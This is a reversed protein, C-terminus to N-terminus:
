ATARGASAAEAPRPEDHLYRREVRPGVSCIVEYPHTGKLRAWDDVSVSQPGEGGLCLVEDGPRAEPVQDLSVATYDMSVRGLVPCLRGHIRLAGRNSLALPLGDAYGAAVVGIRTTTPCVYTAGYGLTSGAAMTRVQALRAHLAFVPRLSVTRRGELDFVGYLNIGTRVHTFPPRVAAPVNHLADSNAIHRWAFTIGAETLTSLLSRFREVQRLSFSEGGRYAMPFHSYIGELELSPWRRLETMLAPVDEAPVGLRGMGTDVVVHVRARVGRSAAARAIRQASERDNVPLRIGCEVATAVEEELAAGLLLVPVGTEAAALAERLEAVAIAAAGARALARAIPGAGLGYADAKLVAIVAAPAVTEAIRRYNERVGDLDITLVVRRFTSGSGSM